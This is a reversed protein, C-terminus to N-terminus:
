RSVIGGGRPTALVIRVEPQKGALELEHKLSRARNTLPIELGNARGYIWIQTLYYQSGIKELVLKTNDSARLNDTTTRVALTLAEYRGRDQNYFRLMPAVPSTNTIEYDGKPLVNKGVVVDDPITMVLTEHATQGYLRGGANLMFILALGAFMKAVRM